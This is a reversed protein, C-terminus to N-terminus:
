DESTSLIQYLEFEPAGTQEKMQTGYEELAASHSAILQLFVDVSEIEAMMIYDPQSPKKNAEQGPVSMWKLPTMKLGQIDKAAPLLKEKLLKEAVEADGTPKLKLKGLVLTTYKPTEKKQENAVLSIGMGLIGAIIIGVLIGKFFSRKM